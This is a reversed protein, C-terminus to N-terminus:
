FGYGECPASPRCLYQYEGRAVLPILLAMRVWLPRLVSSRRKKLREVLM